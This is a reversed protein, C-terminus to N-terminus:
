EKPPNKPDVKPAPPVIAEAKIGPHSFIMAEPDEVDTGRFTVEVTAGQKAGCPTLSQLRTQPLQDGMNVQAQAAQTLCLAGGAVLALALARRFQCDGPM